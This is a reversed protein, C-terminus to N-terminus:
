ILITCQADLAHFLGHPKKSLLDIVNQNDMYELNQWEIGERAYEEQELLFITDNFLKQLLENAYNISFLYFIFFVNFIYFFMFVILSDFLFHNGYNSM